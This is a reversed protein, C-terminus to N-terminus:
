NRAQSNNRKKAIQQFASIGIVVVIGIIDTVAGADILLLGGAIIVIRLLVNLHDFAYGRLGAAVGYVGILATIVVQIGQWWTCDIFLLAPNFGFCYPVIFAAIALTTANVATKM